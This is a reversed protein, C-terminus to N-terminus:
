FMGATQASTEDKAPKTLADPFGYTEFGGWAYSRLGKHTFGAGLGQGVSSCPVSGAERGYVTM